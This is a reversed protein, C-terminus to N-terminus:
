TGLYGRVLGTIVTSLDGGDQACRAKLARALDEPLYVTQRKLLAGDGRRAYVGTNSPAAM